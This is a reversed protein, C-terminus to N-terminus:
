LFQGAVQHIEVVELLALTLLSGGCLPRPVVGGGSFPLFLGAAVSVWGLLPPFVVFLPLGSTVSIGPVPRRGSGVMLLFSPEPIRRVPVFVAVSTASEAAVVIVGAVSTRCRCPRPRM